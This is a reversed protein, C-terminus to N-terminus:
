GRKRGKAIIKKLGQLQHFKEAQICDKNFIEELISSMIEVSAAHTEVGSSTIDGLRYDQLAQSLRTLVRVAALINTDIGRFDLYDKVVQKGDLKAM